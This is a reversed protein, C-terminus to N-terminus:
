EEVVVTDCLMDHLTKHEKNFFAIFFGIFFITGSISRGVTRLIARGVSPYEGNHLVKLNFFMKGPTAGHRSLFYAEYSLDIIWIILMLNLDISRFMTDIFLAIVITLIIKLFNDLVMAAFRTGVRAIKREQPQMAANELPPCAMQVASQTYPQQQQAPNQANSAASPYVPTLAPQQEASTQQIVIIQHCHPCTAQKGIWEPQAQYIGKCLPCQAQFM